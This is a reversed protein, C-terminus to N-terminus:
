NNCATFLWRMLLLLLCIRVQLYMIHVRIVYLFYSSFICKHAVNLVCFYQQMKHVKFYRSVQNM